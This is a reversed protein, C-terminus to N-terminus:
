LEIIEYIRTKLQKLEYIVSEKKEKNSIEEENSLEKVPRKLKLDSLDFDNKQKAGCSSVLFILIIAILKNKPIQIKM